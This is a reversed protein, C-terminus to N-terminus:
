DKKSLQDISFSDSFYLVPPNQVLGVTQHFITKFAEERDNTFKVYYKHQTQIPKSRSDQENLPEPMGLDDQSSGRRNFM